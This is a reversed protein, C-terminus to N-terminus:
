LYREHRERRECDPHVRIPLGQGHDKALMRVKWLSGYFEVREGSHLPFGTSVAFCRDGTDEGDPIIVIARVTRGAEPFQIVEGSM